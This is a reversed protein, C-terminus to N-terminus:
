RKGGTLQKAALKEGVEPNEALLQQLMEGQRKQKARLGVKAVEKNPLQTNDIIYEGDVVGMKAAAFILQTNEDSFIPSSSHSDVVIRSDEPLSRILFTNETDQVPEDM